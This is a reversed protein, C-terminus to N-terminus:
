APYVTSENIGKGDFPTRDQDGIRAYDKNVDLGKIRLLEQVSLHERDNFKYKKAFFDYVDDINKGYTFHAEFIMRTIAQLFPDATIYFDQGAQKTLGGTTAAAEIKIFNSVQEDTPEDLEVQFMQSGENDAVSVFYQIDMGDNIRAFVKKGIVLDARKKYKTKSLTKHARDLQSINDYILDRLKEAEVDDIVNDEDSQIARSIEKDLKRLFAIARECGVTTTGTHQPINVLRDRVYTIFHPHHGDNPWDRVRNKDEDEDNDDDDTEVSDVPIAVMSGPINAPVNIVVPTIDPSLEDLDSELVDDEDVVMDDDPMEVIDMSSDGLFDEIDLDAVKVTMTEETHVLKDKYKDQNAYSHALHLNDNSMPRSDFGLYGTGNLISTYNSNPAMPFDTHGAGGEGWDCAVASDDEMIKDAFICRQDYTRAEYLSNNLLTEDYRSQAVIEMIPNMDLVTNGATKCPTLGNLPLGFPCPRVMSNGRLVALRKLM